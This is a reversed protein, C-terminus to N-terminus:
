FNCTEVKYEEFGYQYLIDDLVRETMERETVRDITIVMGSCSDAIYPRRSHM